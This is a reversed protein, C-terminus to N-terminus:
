KYQKVLRDMERDFEVIAKAQYSLSNRAYRNEDLTTQALEIMWAWADAEKFLDTVKGLAIYFMIEPNM